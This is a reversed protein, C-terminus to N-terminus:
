PLKGDRRSKVFRGKESTSDGRSRSIRTVLNGVTRMEAQARARLKRVETSTLLPHLWLRVPRPAARASRRTSGSKRARSPM